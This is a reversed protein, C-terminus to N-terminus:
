REPSLLAPQLGSCAYDSKLVLPCSLEERGSAGSLEGWERGPLPHPQGTGQTGGVTHPTRGWSLRQPVPPGPPPCLTVVGERGTPVTGVGSSIDLRVGSDDGSYTTGGGSTSHSGDAERRASACTHLLGPSGGLAIAGWDGGVTTGAPRPGEERTSM